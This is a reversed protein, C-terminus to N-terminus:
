RFAHQTKPRKQSIRVPNTSFPRMPARSELIKFTPIRPTLRYPNHIASCARALGSNFCPVHQISINRRVCTVHLGARWLESLNLQCATGVDEDSHSGIFAGCPFKLSLRVEGDDLKSAQIGLRFDILRLYPYQATNAPAQWPRLGHCAGAFLDEGSPIM